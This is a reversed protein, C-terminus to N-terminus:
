VAVALYIMKLLPQPIDQHCTGSIIDNEAVYKTIRIVGAPRVSWSVSLRMTADILWRRKLM